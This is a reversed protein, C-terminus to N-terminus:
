NSPRTATAPNAGRTSAFSGAVTGTLLAVPETDDNVNCGSARATGRRASETQRRDALRLSGPEHRINERFRSIPERKLDDDVKTYQSRDRCRSGRVVHRRLVGPHAVRRNLGHRVTMRQVDALQAEVATVTM